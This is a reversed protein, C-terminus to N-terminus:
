PVAGRKRAPGCRGQSNAPAWQAVLSAHFVVATSHSQASAIAQVQMIIQVAHYDADGGASPAVGGPAHCHRRKV